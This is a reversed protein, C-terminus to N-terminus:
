LVHLEHLLSQLWTIEAIADALARYEAETSSCAVVRQKKFSWFVINPGLFIAHGGMSKRDDICGAWDADPFALIHFSKSRAIPLCLDLTDKLYRLIRKVATWHALTPQQMYQCVKNIFFSLDLRTITAYQLAGVVSRYLTANDFPESDNNHLKTNPSFPNSTPKAGDM